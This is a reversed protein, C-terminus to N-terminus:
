LTLIVGLLTSLRADNDTLGMGNVTPGVGKAPPGVGNATPGLKNERYPLSDVRNDICQDCAYARGLCKGLKM